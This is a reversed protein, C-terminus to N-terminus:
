EALGELSGVARLRLAELILEHWITSMDHSDLIRESPVTNVDIYLNAAFAQGIMPMAQTFQPGVTINMVQFVSASFRLLRNITSAGHALQRRRNVQFSVDLADPFRIVGGLLENVRSAAKEYSDALEFLNLVVACRVVTPIVLQSILGQKERLFAEVDPMLPPGPHEGTDVGQVIYDLRNPQLALQHSLQGHSGQAVALHPAAPSPLRSQQITDPASGTLEKFLSPVDLRSADAIFWVFQATAAPWGSM